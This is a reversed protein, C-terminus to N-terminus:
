KHCFNIDPLLQKPICPTILPPPHGAPFPRSVAPSNTAKRYICVQSTLTSPTGNFHSPTFIVAARIPLLYTVTNIQVFMM